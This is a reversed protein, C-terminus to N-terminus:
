PSLGSLVGSALAGLVLFVSQTVEIISGFTDGTLGGLRRALHARWLWGAGLALLAGAGFAVAGGSDRAIWGLAASLGVAAIAWFTATARRTVGNFLVGFGSARAGSHASTTALVVSARGLMAAATLAGAAMLPEESALRGLAAVEMLLVLLLVIVGMPGIDSRRMIELADAAPKRSGLGDATDALGDLHLAGTVWALTAVGVIPGLLPGALSSTLWTLVGAMGGVLLGVVPFVAMARGATRADINEVPPVPITTFLGLAVVLPNPARRASMAVLGEDGDVHSAVWVCGCSM